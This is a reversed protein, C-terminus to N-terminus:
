GDGWEERFEAVLEALSEADDVRVAPLWDSANRQTKRHQCRKLGWPRSCRLRVDCYNSHVYVKMLQLGDRDNFVLAGTSTTDRKLSKPMGRRLADAIDAGCSLTTSQVSRKRPRPISHSDSHSRPRKEIHIRIGDVVDNWAEDRNKWSTVATGNGPLAQIGAFPAVKWVCASAIIPIVRTTGAERQQLAQSMEREYCYRSAFFHNSVLLLVIDAGELHKDIEHEWDEGPDICRDYWAQILGAHRLVALHSLLEDRLTEDKRSYALFVEVPDPM